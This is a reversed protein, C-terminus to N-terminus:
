VTRAVQAQVKKLLFFRHIFYLPDAYQGASAISGAHVCRHTGNDPSRKGVPDLTHADASAPLAQDVAIKNGEGAFADAM